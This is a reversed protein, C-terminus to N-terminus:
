DTERGTETEQETETEPDEEENGAKKMEGYFNVIISTILAIVVIGYIGLIVSLIRGIASVATMDGFGITTVVAFCYWLANTYQGDFSARDTYLLVFSFSAILLLLLGFIIEAAYTKRVIDRLLDLRLRAFTVSMIRILSRFAILLMVVVVFLLRSEEESWLDWISFIVLLIFAVNLLINYWKRNRLISLVRSPILSAMFVIGAITMVSVTPWIFIAVACALFLGAFIFDLRRREPIQNRYRRATARLFTTLSLLVFETLMLFALLEETNEM